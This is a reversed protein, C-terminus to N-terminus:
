LVGTRLESVGVSECLLGRESGVIVKGSLMLSGAHGAGASEREWCVCQGFRRGSGGEFVCDLWEDILM